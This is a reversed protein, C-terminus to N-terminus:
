GSTKKWADLAQVRALWAQINKFDTVPLKAPETSMLPAAISYDALTLASGIDV